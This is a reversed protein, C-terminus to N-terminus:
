PHHKPETMTWPDGSANWLRRNLWIYNGSVNRPRLVMDTKLLYRSIMFYTCLLSTRSAWSYTNSHAWSLCASKQKDQWSQTNAEQEPKYKPMPHNPHYPIWLYIPYIYIYIYVCWYVYAICMQQYKQINKSHKGGARGGYLPIWLPPGGRAREEEWGISGM